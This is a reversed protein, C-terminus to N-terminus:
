NKRHCRYTWCINRKIDGVTTSLPPPQYKCARSPLQLPSTAHLLVSHCTWRWAVWPTEWAQQTYCRAWQSPICTSQITDICRGKLRFSESIPSNQFHPCTWHLAFSYLSTHTVNGCWQTVQGHSASPEQISVVALSFAHVYWFPCYCLLLYWEWDVCMPTSQMTHMYQICNCASSLTAPVRM